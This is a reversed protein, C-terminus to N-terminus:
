SIPRSVHSRTETSVVHLGVSPRSTALKRRRTNQTSNPLRQNIGLFYPKYNEKIAYTYIQLKNTRKLINIFQASTNKMWKWNMIICFGKLRGLWLLLGRVTLHHLPIASPFFLDIPMCCYNTPHCSVLTFWSHKQRQSVWTTRSWPSYFLNVAAVTITVYHVTHLSSTDKFVCFVCLLASSVLPYLSFQFTTLHMLLCRWMNSVIIVCEYCNTLQLIENEPWLLKPIKVLFHLHEM